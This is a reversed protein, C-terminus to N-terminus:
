DPMAVHLPVKKLDTRRYLATAFVFVSLLTLAICLIANPSGPESPRLIPLLLGLVAGVISVWMRWHLEALTWTTRSRNKRAVNIAILIMLVQVILATM